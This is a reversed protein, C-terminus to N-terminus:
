IVDLDKVNCHKQYIRNLRERVKLIERAHIAIDSAQGSAGGSPQHMMISANPLAYRKGPEGAALLLSGMSCAQGNCFTSVPSQIYQM